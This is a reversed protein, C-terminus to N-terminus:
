GAQRPAARGLSEGRQGARLFGGYQGIMVVVGALAQIGTFRQECRGVDVHGAKALQEAVRHIAVNIRLRQYQRVQGNGAFAYAIHEEDGGHM